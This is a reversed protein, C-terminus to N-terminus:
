YSVLINRDLLVRRQLGAPRGQSGSWVGVQPKRTSPEEGLHGQQHIELQLSSLHARKVGSPTRGKGPRKVRGLGSWGSRRGRELCSLRTSESPLAPSFLTGTIEDLLFFCCRPPSHDINNYALHLEPCTLPTNILCWRGSESLHSDNSLRPTPTISPQTVSGQLQFACGGEKQSTELRSVQSHGLLPPASILM